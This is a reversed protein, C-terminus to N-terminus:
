DMKVPVMTGSLTAIHTEVGNDVAYVDSTVIILRRGPKIVKGRAILTDGRAPALLHIGIESTLVAHEDDLVTMAAGGAATDGLTFTLGAHGFGNHQKFGESIPAELEVTGKGVARVSAGITQLMTQSALIAQIRPDEIM